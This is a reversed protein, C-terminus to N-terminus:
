TKDAHQEYEKKKLLDRFFFAYLIGILSLSIFLVPSKAEPKTQLKMFAHEGLKMKSAHVVVSNRGETRGIVFPSISNDETQKPITEDVSTVVFGSPLVLELSFQDISALSTNIFRKKITYNGFDTAKEKGFNCYRQITFQMQLAHLPSRDHNGVRVFHIGEREALEADAARFSTDNGRVVFSIAEGATFPFNWPVMLSRLTDSAPVIHWVVTASGDKELLVQESFQKLLQAAIPLPLVALLFIIFAHVGIRKTM